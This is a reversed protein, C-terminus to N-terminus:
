PPLTSMLRRITSPEPTMMATALAWPRAPVQAIDDDTGDGLESPFRAALEVLRLGWKLETPASTGPAVAHPHRDLADEIRGSPPAGTRDRGRGTVAPRDVLPEIRNFMPRKAQPGGARRERQSRGRMHSRM